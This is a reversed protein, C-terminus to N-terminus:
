PAYDGSRLPRLAAHVVRTQAMQHVPILLSEPTLPKGSCHFILRRPTLLKDFGIAINTKFNDAVTRGTEYGHRIVNVTTRLGTTTSAKRMLRDPTDVTDFRM